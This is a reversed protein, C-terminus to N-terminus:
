LFIVSLKNEVDLDDKSCQNLAAESMNKDICFISKLLRM